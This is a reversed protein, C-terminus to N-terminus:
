KLDCDVKAAVTNNRRSGRKRQRKLARQLLFAAKGGSEEIWCQRERSWFGKEAAWRWDVLSMQDIRARDSENQNMTESGPYPTLQESHVSKIGRKGLM